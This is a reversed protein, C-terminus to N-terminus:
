SRRLKMGSEEGGEGKPAAGSCWREEIGTPAEQGPNAGRLKMRYEKMVILVGRAWWILCEEKRTACREKGRIWWIAKWDGNQNVQLSVEIGFRKSIVFRALCCQFEIEGVRWARIMRFYLSRRWSRQVTWSNHIGAHTLGSSIPSKTSLM